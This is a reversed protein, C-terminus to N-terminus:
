QENEFVSAFMTARDEIFKTNNDDKEHSYIKDLYKLRSFKFYQDLNFELGLERAVCDRIPRFYVNEKMKHDQSLPVFDVNLKKEVIIKEILKNALYNILPITPHYPDNFMPMKQFCKLFHEVFPIDGTAEIARLKKVEHNFHNLIEEKLIPGALYNDLSMTTVLKPFFMVTEESFKTLEVCEVDPWYGWFRVFPIIIILCDVKTYRRINEVSFEPYSTIPQLILVDANRIKEKISDFNKLNVYSTDHEVTLFDIKSKNRIIEAYRVGHCNAFVYVNM